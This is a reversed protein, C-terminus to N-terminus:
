PFIIAKGFSIERIIDKVTNFLKGEKVWAKKFDVDGLRKM